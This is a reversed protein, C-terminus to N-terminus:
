LSQELLNNYEAKWIRVIQKTRELEADKERVSKELELAHLYLEYFFESETNTSFRGGDFLSAEYLIESLSKAM